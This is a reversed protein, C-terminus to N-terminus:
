AQFMIIFAWPSEGQTNGGSVISSRDPKFFSSSRGLPNLAKFMLPIGLTDTTPAASSSSAVVPNGSEVVMEVGDVDATQKVQNVLIVLISANEPSLNKLCFCLRPADRGLFRLHKIMIRIKNSITRAFLDDPYDSVNVGLLPFKRMLALIGVTMQRPLPTKNGGLSEVSSYDFTLGFFM